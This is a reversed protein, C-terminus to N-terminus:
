RGGGFFSSEIKYKMGFNRWSALASKSVSGNVALNRFVCQGTRWNFRPGFVVRMRSTPM